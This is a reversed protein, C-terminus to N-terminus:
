WNKALGVVRREHIDAMFKKVDAPSKEVAIVAPTAEYKNREESVADGISQLLLLLAMMLVMSHELTKVGNYEENSKSVM